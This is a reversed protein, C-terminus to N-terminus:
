LRDGWYGYFFSETGDTIGYPIYMLEYETKVYQVNGDADTVVEEVVNGHEDYTYDRTSIAGEPDTYIQKICNGDENYVYDVSDESGDPYTLNEKSIRGNEDYTIVKLFIETVGNTVTEMKVANGHEDYTVNSEYEYGEAERTEKIINGKEDYEFAYYIESGDAYNSYAAILKGYSDYTYEIYSIEPEGDTNVVLTQKIVNGYEDYEFHNIAQAEPRMTIEGTPLNLGNYAVYNTGKKGILDYEFSIPMYHFKSLYTRSDKYYKVEEFATRAGEYDGNALLSLAEEYKPGYLEDEYEFEPIDIVTTGVNTYLSTTVAVTEVSGELTAEKYIVSKPVGNEFRVEWRAGEEEMVDLVYACIEEDYVFEDYVYGGGLLGEHSFDLWTYDRALFGDETEILCYQKYGEYLIITGSEFELAYPTYKHVLSYSDNFQEITYNKYTTWANWEDETVTYRIENSPGDTQPKPQCGVLAVILVFLLIFILTIKKM